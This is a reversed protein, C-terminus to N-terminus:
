ADLAADLAADLPVDLPVSARAEVRAKLARNFAAYGSDTHQTAFFREFPTTLVGSFTETNELRTTGDDTRVLTFHHAGLFIRESGITASWELEQDPTAATITPRFWLGPMRIKLRTGLEATGEVRSFNSWEGYSPFDTLVQWVQEPTAAIDITTALVISM